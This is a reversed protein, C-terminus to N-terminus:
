GDLKTTIKLYTYMHVYMFKNASFGTLFIICCAMASVDYRELFLIANQPYLGKM